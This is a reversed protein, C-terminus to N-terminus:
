KEHYEGFVLGLKPHLYVPQALDYNHYVATEGEIPTLWLPYVHKLLASSFLPVPQETNAIKVAQVLKYQSVRVSHRLLHLQQPRPAKLTLAVTEETEDGAILASDGNKILPILTITERESWRTQAVAWAASDEDEAFGQLKASRYFPYDPLPEDALRMNAETELRYAAEDMADWAEYLEADQKSPKTETYVAEILLRYDTPLSFTDRDQLARQTMQLIYDGYIHQDAKERLNNIFLRPTKHDFRDALDREHRHLRGARQLILDIPSLDTVMLDFDLDLSQELVQTGIVIGRHPRQSETSPKGYKGLIDTEIAQRQSLPFRSHLLTLDVDPAHQLARFIAQARNVTNTIWCVSGGNEVQALLWHAKEAAQEDTFTLTDLQIIKNEQFVSIPETPTYSEHANITILSPYIDLNLTDPETQGAYANILERRKAKPLTASLLIVSSGLASLWNLMRKIITTMYTDYAHVEDLIITKGALGILRLANHKVNLASLEAQDITGVGFPALLAKKKPAFWNEAESEEKDDNILSDVAIDDTQLFSQGHVLQVDSDLGLREQLHTIIRQYMANSTATTPLAIYMEDSGRQVAIRRALLLAAETKGEGTPAEIITLTPHNLLKAPIQEIAQQLPRPPDTFDHFLQTFSTPAHSVATQFLGAKTVRLFAQRRSHIVYDPLSTSPKPTFYAGDSGLWDCLICFGNLAAIAASVNPPNPLTEPWQQCLYSKLLVLAHQRLEAWEAPEQIRDFNNQDQMGEPQYIGHHGSVMDLFAHRLNTPWEATYDNLLLRGVVTHHQKTSSQGLSFGESELRQRQQLNLNQFPPSLKGIDHLAILYPLWEYLADPNTGLTHGLVQRWRPTARPSLLQQAIHAVDFMHYLAPHFLETQKSTKGWLRLLRNTTSVATTNGVDYMSASQRAHAKIVERLEEPQLVEVDAGWGRIWPLMEIPEAIEAQWRLRGNALEVIEQSGHWQTERVRKAVSKDFELVVKQPEKETYWIGWADSLLERPNFTDPIEYIVAPTIEEIREIREIKFTRLADIDERKGIVHVTQGVAYPEIFYPSFRYKHVINTKEYRHWVYVTRQEAWAVALKELVQMFRPDQFQTVDDIIDASQKVHESIQPALRELSIGLKRLAAAAHPNQKDMRTALLRSALHVALAEHLSFRVNVLYAERDIKWKGGDLDDIYIHRPLDPPYRNITSRNVQLKRAIDSQILGEPHALLLTEIQLLRNAKKESRSM